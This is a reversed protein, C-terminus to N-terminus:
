LTLFWRILDTSTLIGQLRGAGDIVPLAHFQGEALLEAAERISSSAEVAVPEPTMVEILDHSEDLHADVTSADQVYAALSLPAIDAASVLGILHEGRLVPVHHFPSAALLRRVESLKQDVQVTAVDRTMIRSVTQLRDM